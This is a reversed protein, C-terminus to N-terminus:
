EQPRERLLTKVFNPLVFAAEAIADNYYRLPAIDAPRRPATLPDQGKSALMFSHMGSPYIPIAALYLRAYAFEDSMVRVIDHVLAGRLFPSDTQQVLLGGDKLARCADRYFQRQFLGEGPGIPDSCDVIIVDYENETAAVKALGDGVTVHLREPEAILASAIQPFYQKALRIVEADIEVMDVARVEPHRLVERASGGDGGGIILVREPHPHMYLPVHAIMEHYVWEEADSTQFVGDLSLVRGFQKTDAVIIEQFESKGQYLIENVAMSFRLSPTQVETVWGAHASPRCETKATAM